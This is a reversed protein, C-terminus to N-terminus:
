RSAACMGCGVRQRRYMNSEKIRDILEQKRLKSYGSIDHKRAYERLEPVTMEDFDKSSSSSSSGGVRYGQAYYNVLDKILSAKSRGSFPVKGRALDQLEYLTMSELQHPKHSLPIAGVRNTGSGGVKKTMGEMHRREYENRPSMAGGSGGGGVMQRSVYSNSYNRSPRAYDYSDYRSMKYGCM